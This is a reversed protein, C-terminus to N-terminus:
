MYLTAPDMGAYLGAVEAGYGNFLQTPVVDGTGLVREMAQSWRPHPVERGFAIERPEITLDTPTKM